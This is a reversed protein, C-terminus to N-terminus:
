NITHGAMWNGGDSIVKMWVPVLGALFYGCRGGGAEFVQGTVDVKFKGPSIGFELFSM